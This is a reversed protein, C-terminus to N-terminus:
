HTFWPGDASSQFDVRPYIIAAAGMAGPPPSCDSNFWPGDTFPPFAYGKCVREGNEVEVPANKNSALYDQM